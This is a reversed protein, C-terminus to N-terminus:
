KYAPTFYWLLAFTFFITYPTIIKKAGVAQM